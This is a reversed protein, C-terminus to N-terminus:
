REEEVKDFLNSIFAASVLIDENEVANLLDMKLKEASVEHENGSEFLRKELSYKGEFALKLDVLDLEGGLGGNAKNGLKYFNRLNIDGGRGKLSNWKNTPKFGGQDALDEIELWKKRSAKYKSSKRLKKLDNLFTQYEEDNKAKIDEKNSDIVLDKIEEAPILKILEVLADKANEKGRNFQSTLLAVMKRKSTAKSRGIIDYKRLIAILKAHTVFKTLDVDSKIVGQIRLIESSPAASDVLETPDKGSDTETEALAEERGSESPDGLPPADEGMFTYGEWSKWTEFQDRIYLCWALAQTANRQRKSATQHWRGDNPNWWFKETGLTLENWGDVASSSFESMTRIYPYRRGKTAVYIAPFQSWGDRDFSLQMRLIDNGSVGLFKALMERSHSQAEGSIAEQVIQANLDNINLYAPLDKLNKISSARSGITNKLIVFDAPPKKRTAVSNTDFNSTIVKEAFQRRTARYCPIGTAEFAQIKEPDTTFLLFAGKTVRGDTFFMADDENIVSDVIYSIAQDRTKRTGGSAHIEERQFTGGAAKCEIVLRLGDKEVVVDEKHDSIAARAVETFGFNVFIQSCALQALGGGFGGTAMHVGTGDRVTTARQSMEFILRDLISYKNM